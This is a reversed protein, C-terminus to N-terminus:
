FTQRETWKDKPRDQDVRIKTFIRLFRQFWQINLNVIAVKRNLITYMFRIAGTFPCMFLVTQM